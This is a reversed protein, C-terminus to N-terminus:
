FEERIIINSWMHLMGDQTLQRLQYDVSSTDRHVNSIPCNNNNNNYWFVVNMRTNKLFSKLFMGVLDKTLTVKKM